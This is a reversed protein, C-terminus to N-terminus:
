GRRGGSARRRVALPREPGADLGALVLHGLHSWVNM